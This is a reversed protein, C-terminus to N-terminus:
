PQRTASQDEERKPNYIGVYEGRAEVADLPETHGVPHDSHLEHGPRPQDVIYLRDRLQRMEHQLDGERRWLLRQKTCQLRARFLLGLGTAFGAAVLLIELM